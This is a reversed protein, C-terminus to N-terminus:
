ARAIVTANKAFSYNQKFFGNVASIASGAYFATKRIKKGALAYIV